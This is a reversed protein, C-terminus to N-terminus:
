DDRMGSRQGAGNRAGPRALRSGSDHRSRPLAYQTLADRAAQRGAQILVEASTFDCWEVHRVAPAIVLDASEHVHERFLAAGIDNMRLLIEVASPHRAIPKLETGVDIAFLLEHPLQRAVGLPLAAFGGIDALLQQEHAVPPFIGPVSASARAALRVPGQEFVVPRGSHLDVAILCVPIAADRLDADPLLEKVVLELLEGSVLSSRRIARYMLRNARLADALRRYRTAITGPTDPSDGLRTGFLRQQHRQFEPSRLFQLAREQIANLDPQFAYMAGVLAGISVGVVREIEFGASLIEHIAGLHALGRAGGGGLALTVKKRHTSRRTPSM